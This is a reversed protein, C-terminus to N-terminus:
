HSPENSALAREADERRLLGLLVGDSCTVPPSTLQQANMPELAKGLELSPRVTSPGATM